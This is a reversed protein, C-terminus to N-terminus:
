GPDRHERGAGGAGGAGYSRCITSPYSRCITSPYSRCITSPYTRFITSPRSQTIYTVGFSRNTFIQSWKSCLKMQIPSIRTGADVVAISVPYFVPNFYTDALKRYGKRYHKQDEKMTTRSSSATLANPRFKFSSIQFKIICPFGTDRELKWYWTDLMMQSRCTKEYIQQRTGRRM